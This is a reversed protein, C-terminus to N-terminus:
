VDPTVVDREAAAPLLAASRYLAHVLRSYPWLLFLSLVAGLHLALLTGMAATDRLGLLLLGTAEVLLLMVFLAYGGGLTSRPETLARAAL